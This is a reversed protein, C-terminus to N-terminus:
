FVCNDALVLYGPINEVEMVRDMLLHGEKIAVPTLNYIAIDGVAFISDVGDIKNVILKLKDM